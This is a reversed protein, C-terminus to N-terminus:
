LTFKVQHENGLRDITYYTSAPNARYESEVIDLADAYELFYGSGKEVQGRNVLLVLSRILVYGLPGRFAQYAERLLRLSEHASLKTADGNLFQTAPGFINQDLLKTLCEEPYCNSLLSYYTDSLQKALPLGRRTFRYSRTSEQGKELVGLDVLWELRPISMQERRSGTGEKHIEKEAQEDILDRVRRIESMELQDDSSYASSIFHSAMKELASSMNNGAEVYTFEVKGFVDAWTQLLPLMFDGDRKLIAYMFFLRQSATINVPSIGPGARGEWQDIEDAGIFGRVLTQGLETIEFTDETVGLKPPFYVFYEPIAERSLWGTQSPTNFIWLYQRGTRIAGQDGREKPAVREYRLGNSSLWELLRKDYSTEVVTNIQRRMVDVFDDSSRRLSVISALKM